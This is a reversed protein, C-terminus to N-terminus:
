GLIVGWWKDWLGNSVLTTEDMETKKQLYECVANDADGEADYYLIGPVSAPNCFMQWSRYTPPLGETPRIVNHDCAKVEPASAKDRKAALDTVAMNVTGGIFSAQAKTWARPIRKQEYISIAESLTITGRVVESIVRGLFVGDEM